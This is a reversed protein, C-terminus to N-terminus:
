TNTYHEDLFDVARENRKGSVSNSIGVPKQTNTELSSPVRGQVAHEIGVVDVVVFVEVSFWRAFIFWHCFWNLPGLMKVVEHIKHLLVGVKGTLALHRVFHICSHQVFLYTTDGELTHV